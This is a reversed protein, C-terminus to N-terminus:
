GGVREVTYGRQKLEALLGREGLLHGAGVAVLVGGERIQQEIMPLWRANREFLVAEFFGPAALMQSQDFLAATLDAEDGRAYADIMARGLEANDESLTRKLEALQEAAPIANLVALQQEISELFLLTKGAKKAAQLLEMDMTHLEADPRVEHLARQMDDMVLLIAPLWPKMKALVPAPLRDGVRAVLKRWLVEGLMAQLSQGPALLASQMMQAPDLQSADVEMMVARAAQYHRRAQANLVEEFGFGVHMTGMLFSRQEGKSVAYLFLGPTAKAAAGQASTSAAPTAAQPKHSACGLLAFSLTLALIGRGFVNLRNM